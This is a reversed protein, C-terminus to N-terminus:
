NSRGSDKVWLRIGYNENKKKWGFRNKSLSNIRIDKKQWLLYFYEM